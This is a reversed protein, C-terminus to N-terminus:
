GNRSAAEYVKASPAGEANRESVQLGDIQELETRLATVADERSAATKRAVLVKGRYAHAGWQTGLPGSRIDYRGYKETRYNM